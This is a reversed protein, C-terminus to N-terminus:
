LPEDAPVLERKGIRGAMPKVEAKPHSERWRDRWFDFMDPDPIESARDGGTAYREMWGRFFVRVYGDPDSSANGVLQCFQSFQSDHLCVKGCM